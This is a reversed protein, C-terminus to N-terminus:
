YGTNGNWEMSTPIAYAINNRDSIIPKIPKPKYPRYELEIEPFKEYLYLDDDIDIDIRIDHVKETGNNVVALSFKQFNNKYQHIYYDELHDKISQSYSYLETKYKQKKESWNPDFSGDILDINREETLCYQLESNLNFDNYNLIIEHLENKNEVFYTDIIPNKIIKSPTNKVILGFSNCIQKSLQKRLEAKESEPSLNYNIRKNQFIDFPIDKENGYYENFFLITKETGLTALAYGLELMVNPNPTKRYIMENNNIISIDAIFIDCAKIKDIITSVINAAGPVGQTDKDLSIEERDQIELQSNNFAKIGEKIILEIFSRNTNNPLDSEWSYFAIYKM